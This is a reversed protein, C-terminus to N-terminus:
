KRIFRQLAFEDMMGQELKDERLQQQHKKKDILMEVAKRKRQQALWLEKRQQAAQEANYTLQQQQACANDLKNIFSQHHTFSLAELGGQARAQVKKFYDLRYQRLSDLKLQNQAVHDTALKFNQAAKDEKEQEIQAVLLLQKLAM